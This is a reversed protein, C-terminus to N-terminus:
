ATRRRRAYGIGLVGTCLLLLTTPEPIAPGSSESITSTFISGDARASDVPDLGSDAGPGTPDIAFDIESGIMVLQTLTEQVGVGDTNAIPQSFIETGDVFIRGTIGGGSNNGINKKHLDFAIDVFGAVPSVFRRVAWIVANQGSPGIGAPHGGLENLKLFVSNNVGGVQMASAKWVTDFTDFQEFGAGTAKTPSGM